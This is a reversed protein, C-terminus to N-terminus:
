SSPCRASCASRITRTSRQLKNMQPQIVQMKASSKRSKIDGFVTIAKILITSIVVTLAISEGTINEFLWRM